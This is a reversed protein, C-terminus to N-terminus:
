VDPWYLAHSYCSGTPFTCNTYSNGSKELCVRIEVLVTVNRQTDFYCGLQPDNNTANRVADIISSVNYSTNNDPVIQKDSLMKLLNTRRKINLALQFYSLQPFSSASCTGHKLWQYKWFSFDNGILNPWAWSLHSRVPHIQRPTLTNNPDCNLLQQSVDEPWLGHITFHRPLTGLCLRGGIQIQRSCFGKPWSETFIFYDYGVCLTAVSLVLFLSFVDLISM